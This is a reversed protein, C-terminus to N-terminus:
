ALVEDYIAEVLTAVRRADHRQEVFERAERNREHRATSPETRVRILADALGTVDEEEVLEHLRPVVFPIDAHRTAIVPLGLAQFELIAVPAGGETDGDAAVRSPQLAVDAEAAITKLRDHTVLGLFRVDEQIRLEEALKELEARLPGDGVLWLESPGLAPRAEAFARLTLDVGKKEVFRAAQLAVLRETPARDAFPLGELDIGIPVLRVRETPAGAAALREAMAPGEVLFASGASFLRAYPDRFRARQAESLDRGYFTTVLPLGLRRQAEVADRGSWGFHAHVVSCGARDVQDALWRGYGSTRRRAMADVLLSLRSESQATNERSVVREVPFEELNSTRETLVLPRFRAQHSLMTHIFTASLPLYEPVVHAVTARDVPPPASSSGAPATAVDMTGVM